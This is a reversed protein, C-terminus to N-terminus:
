ELVVVDYPLVPVIERNSRYLQVVGTVRVRTGAGGLATNHPVRDLTNQWIFILVEGTDDAIFIKTGSGAGEVRVVSGTVTVREDIHNGLEGIPYALASAAGAITVKVDGGFNPAIQMEGEYEGIEGTAQVTAGINLQPADWCDDYVNNWMLLTLRGNEDNLRFTYGGAFSSVATVRGIVTVEEGMHAAIDSLPITAPQPVATPYPTATPPPTETPLPSATPLPILTPSSTATATVTAALTAIRTATETPIPSPPVTATNTPISTSVPTSVSTSFVTATATEVPVVGVAEQEGACAVLLFLSLLLSLFQKTM